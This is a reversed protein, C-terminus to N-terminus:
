GVRREPIAVDETTSPATELPPPQPGLTRRLRALRGPSIRQSLVEQYLSHRFAYRATPEGEPGTESGARCLFQGQQALQDCQEEVDELTQQLSAAVMAATFEMGVMSAVELLRQDGLPLHDLQKEILHQTTKPVKLRRLAQLFNWPLVENIQHHQELLYDTLHVFFLPNGETHNHVVAALTHFAFPLVIKEATFRYTLYHEIDVQRLLPLALEHCYGRAILERMVINLPHGQPPIEEPRFTGIVLLNMPESRRALFTLFDVTAPDSWHLDELILITPTHQSLVKLVETIQRLMTRPDSNLHENVAVQQDTIPLFMPPHVVFFPTYQEFISQLAPSVKTHHLRSFADLIPLYPTSERQFPSCQGSVILPSSSETVQVRFTDLLATKGIGLEGTVFVIQKQGQRARAWWAHLQTLERTRGVLMSPADSSQAAFHVTQATPMEMAPAITLIPTRLRYGRRAIAELYRPAQPSDHLAKRLEWICNKLAGPTVTVGAWVASFLERHSIIQGPREIFYRLVAATKSRLPTATDGRWLQHTQVDFWAQPDERSKSVLEPEGKKTLFRQSKGISCGRSM